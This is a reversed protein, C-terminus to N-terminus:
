RDGGLGRRAQVGRADTPIRAAGMEAGSQDLDVIVESVELGLEAARRRGTEEQVEPSIFSDGARNGVDSVRVYVLARRRRPKRM